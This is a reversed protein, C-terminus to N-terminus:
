AHVHLGGRTNTVCSKQALKMALPSLACDAHPHAPEAEMVNVLMRSVVHPAIEDHEASVARAAAVGAYLGMVIDNHLQEALVKQIPAGVDDCVELAFEAVFSSSCPEETLM